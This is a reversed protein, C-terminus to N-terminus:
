ISEDRFGSLIKGVVLTQSGFSLESFGPLPKFFQLTGEIFQISMLMLKKRDQTAIARCNRGCAWAAPTSLQTATVKKNIRDLGGKYKACYSAGRFHTGWEERRAKRRSTHSVVFARM